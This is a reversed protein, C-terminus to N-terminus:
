FDEVERVEERRELAWGCARGGERTNLGWNRYATGDIHFRIGSYYGLGVQKERGTAGHLVCLRRMLDTREFPIVPVLDLAAGSRHASLRAGGACANLSPNRYNSVVELRGINPIIDDRLIKLTDVLEPWAEDPPIEFPQAGCRRWSSATRLLQWTPVVDLVGERTLYADLRQVLPLRARDRSLWYRYGVERQGWELYPYSPSAIRTSGSPPLPVSAASAATASAPAALPTLAFLACLGSTLFAKM